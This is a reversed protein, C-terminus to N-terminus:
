RPGGEHPRPRHRAAAEDQVPAAQNNRTGGDLEYLMPKDLRVDITRGEHRARVGFPRRPPRGRTARARVWQLASDATVVGIELLGDDPTAENFLVLGGTATGVNGVLVCSAKGTFWPTGDVKVRMGVVDSRMARMGTRVYALKGLQEKAAGDAEDIMRADFGAGAMVAFHEGNVTGVDLQRHRGRPAVDCAEDLEHPIGLNTAFLNATGAPLIGITVKEGALVDVCHQVMGDGGWVIFHDAGEKLANRVQKPAKKSKPVEHWIPEDIAAAVLSDVPQDLGGEM